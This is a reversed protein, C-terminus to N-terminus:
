NLPRKMLYRAPTTESASFQKRMDKDLEEWFYALHSPSVTPVSLTEPKYARDAYPTHSHQNSVSTRGCHVASPFDSKEVLIEEAHANFDPECNEPLEIDDCDSEAAVRSSSSPSSSPRSPNYRQSIM